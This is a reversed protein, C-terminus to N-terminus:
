FTVNCHHEQLMVSQQLLQTVARTTSVSLCCMLIVQQHCFKVQDTAVANCCHQMDCFNHQLDNRSQTLLSTDLTATAARARQQM